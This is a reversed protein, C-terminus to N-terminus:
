KTLELYRELFMARAEVEGVPVIREEAPVIGELRWPSPEPAMLDRKETALAVLDCHKVPPSHFRAANNPDNGCILAQAIARDFKRVLRDWATKFGPLIVELTRKMPTTMDGLYAEHADHLLAELPFMECLRSCFVSHQAVSYGLYLGGHPGVGKHTHGAYRPLRALCTAIENIDIQEPQPHLLFIQRGMLSQMWDGPPDPNGAPSTIQKARSKYAANTM